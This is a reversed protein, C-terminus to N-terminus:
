AKLLSVPEIMTNPAQKTIIQQESKDDNVAQVSAQKIQPVQSKIKNIDHRIGKLESLMSTQVSLQKELIQYTSDFEQQQRQEKKERIKRQSQAKVENAEQKTLKDSNTSGKDNLKASNTIHSTSKTPNGVVVEPKAKDSKIEKSPKLAKDPKSSKAGSGNKWIDDGGVIKTKSRWTRKTGTLAGDDISSAGSSGGVNSPEAPTLGQGARAGNLFNKDRWLSFGPCNNRYVKWTSQIFDSIWNKGDWIQIHGHKHSSNSGFIMVDGIQWPTKSDIQMFGASALTGKTHYLYASSQGTFKYGASQLAQRVYRACYGTSRSLGKQRAYKAAKMPMSSTSLTSKFPAKGDTSSQGKTDVPMKIRISSSYTSQNAASTKSISSPVGFSTTSVSSPKLLSAPPAGSKDSRKEVRPKLKPAGPKDFGSTGQNINSSFTSGFYDKMHDKFAGSTVSEGPSIVGDKNADWVKNLKYAQSGAKYGTGTVADYVQGLSAGPKLGKSKFYDVVYKMQQAVSLSGFQDRTMGYYKGDRRGDSYEMFQILGTATSSPNRKNPSFTGGTEFSIVSALYNPDIGLQEAGWKVAQAVEPTWGKNPKGSFKPTSGTSSEGTVWERVKQYGGLVTRVPLMAGKMLVNATKGMLGDGLLRNTLSDIGSDLANKPNKLIEKLKGVKSEQEKIKELEKERKQLSKADKVDQAKTYKGETKKHTVVFNKRVLKYIDLVDDVGMQVQKEASFGSTMVAYPSGQPRTFTVKDLAQLKQEPDLKDDMDFINFNGQMQKSVTCYSLFVPLFRKFFYEHWKEIAMSDTPDVNFYEMVQAVEISNKLIAKNGKMTVHKVLEGELAYLTKLTAKNTHEYGYGAMRFRNLKKGDDNYKRYMELAFKGVDYALWAWGVPGMLVGLARKAAFKGATAMGMGAFKAAHKGTFWAARGGLKAGFGGVKLAGKFVKPTIFRGAGLALSGTAKIARGGLRGATGAAKAAIGALKGTNKVATTKGAIGKAGKALGYVTTGLMAANVANDLTFLSNGSSEQSAAASNFEDNEYVSSDAFGQLQNEGNNQIDMDPMFGTSANSKNMAFVGAGALSVMAAYKGKGKLLSTIKSLGAGSTFLGAIKKLGLVSAVRGLLTKGVWWAGKAYTKLVFPLISGFATSIAGGVVSTIGGAAIGFASSLVGGLMSALSGLLGKKKEVKKEEPKTLGGVKNKASSMRRQLIDRWSNDKDGDGDQDGFVSKKNHAKDLTESIKGLLHSQTVQNKLNEVTALHQQQKEKVWDTPQLKSIADIKSKGSKKFDIKSFDQKLVGAKIKAVDIQQNARQKLADVKEKLKFPKGDSVFLGRVFHLKNLVINGKKDTIDGDIDDVSQLVEGTDRKFYEGMELKVAEIRPYTEGRVFVSAIRKKIAQATRTVGNKISVLKGNADVTAVKLPKRRRFNKKKNQGGGSNNPENSGSDDITQINVTAKQINFEPNFPNPGVPSGPLPPPMGGLPLPPPGGNPKPFPGGSPSKPFPSPPPPTPTPSNNSGDSTDGGNAYDYFKDYDFSYTGNDDIKIFDYVGGLSNIDRYDGIYALRGVPNIHSKGASGLMQQLRKETARYKDSANKLYEVDSKINLAGDGLVAGGAKNVGMKAFYKLKGALDEPMEGLDADEFGEASVFEDDGYNDKMFKAFDEDHLPHSQNLFHKLSIDQGTMAFITINKRMRNRTASSLKKNPDVTDLVQDALSGIDAINSEKTIDGILKKDLQEQTKFGGTVWDYRLIGPDPRGNGIVIQQHIRALLGPIVENISRKTQIDFVASTDLKTEPSTKILTRASEGLDSLGLYDSIKDILPIGTADGSNFASSILRPLRAQYTSLLDDGLKVREDSKTKSGLFDGLRKLPEQVYKNNVFFSSAINGAMRSLLSEKDMGLGDDDDGQAAATLGSTITSILGDSKQKIDSVIKERARRTIHSTVQSLTKQGPIRATNITRQVLGAKIAEATRVKVVDPLATNKIVADMKKDMMGLLKESVDLSKRQTLLQRYNFEIMKRQYRSTVNDQYNALRGLFQNSSSNLQNSDLALKTQTKTHLNVEKLSEDQSEAKASQHANFVEDLTKAVALDDMNQNTNTNKSVDRYSSVWNEIKSGYKAKYKDPLKSALLKISQENARKFKDLPEDIARRIERTAGKIESTTNLLGKYSNAYSDPLLTRLVKDQTASSLATDKVGSVFGGAFNEVVKRQTSVPKSEFGGEGMLDFDGFDDWDDFNIEEEKSM